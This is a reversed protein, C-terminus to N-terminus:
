DGGAKLLKTMRTYLAKTLQLEEISWKKPKHPGELRALEAAGIRGLLEIRYRVVNGSLHNNCPACQKHVNAPDFRLEPCAGTSLFHGAHWQGDHHRNCSVCPLEADRARVWANFAAQAEKLWEQRSKLQLRKSADAMREAKARDARVVGLACVPGCVRQMPRSPMFPDGCAKCKKTRATIGFPSKRPFMM